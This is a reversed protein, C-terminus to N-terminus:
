LGFLLHISVDQGLIKSTYENSPAIVGAIKSTKTYKISTLSGQDIANHLLHGALLCFVVSLSPCLCFSRTVPFCLSLIVPLCAPLCVFGAIRFFTHCLRTEDTNASKPRRSSLDNKEDKCADRLGVSGDTHM